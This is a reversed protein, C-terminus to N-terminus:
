LPAGRCLLGRAHGRRCRGRIHATDQEEVALRGGTLVPFPQQKEAVKFAACAAPQPVRPQAQEPAEMDGPTETGAGSRWPLPRPSLIMESNVVIRGSLQPRSWGHGCLTVFM